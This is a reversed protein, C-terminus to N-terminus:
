ALIELIQKQCENMHVGVARPLYEKGVFVLFVPTSTVELSRAPLYTELRNDAWSFGNNTLCGGHAAYFDVLIAGGLWIGEM